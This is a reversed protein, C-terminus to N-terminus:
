EYSCLCFIPFRLDYDRIDLTNSDAQIPLDPLLVNHLNIDAIDSLAVVTVRTLNNSDSLSTPSIYPFHEDELGCEHIVAELHRFM